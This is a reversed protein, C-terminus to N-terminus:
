EFWCVRLFGSGGDGSTITGASGSASYAAGGGGGGTNATASAATISSGPVSTLYAGNGGGDTARMHVAGHTASGGGGGAKGNVGVGGRASLVSAVDTVYGGISMAGNGGAGANGTNDGRGGVGGPATLLAGFTTNGGTNGSTNGTIGSRSVATGGAGITVTVAGSVTVPGCIYAGADGGCASAAAASSNIQVGGSGGGGIAEIYCQGGNALLAASPTFTGSSTFEQYRLKGGGSALFDSLNSM